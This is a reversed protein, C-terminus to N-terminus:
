TFYNVVTVEAPKNKLPHFALPNQGPRVYRQHVLQEALPVAPYGHVSRIVASPM